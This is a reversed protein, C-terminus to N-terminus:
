SIEGDAEPTSDVQELTHVRLEAADLLDNCHQVLLMGREYLAIAESLSLDGDELRRITTDLEAVAQEFSLEKLEDSM